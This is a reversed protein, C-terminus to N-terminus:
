QAAPADHPVKVLSENWWEEADWFNDWGLERYKPNIEIDREGYSFDKLIDNGFRFIDRAWIVPRVMDKKVYSAWTGDFRYGSGQAPSDDSFFWLSMPNEKDDLDSFDLKFTGKFLGSYALNTSDEPFEFTGAVAYNELFGMDGIEQKDINPDDFARVQGIRMTGRFSTVVKKHRNKGEVFYVAPDAKSKVVKTFIFEIRYRDDGYFGNDPFNSVLLSSLDRGSMFKNLEAWQLSRFRLPKRPAASDALLTDAAERHTQLRVPEPKAAAMAVKDPQNLCAAWVMVIAALAASLRLFLNNKM